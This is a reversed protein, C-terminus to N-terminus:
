NMSPHLTCTVCKLSFSMCPIVYMYICYEYKTNKRKRPWHNIPYACIGGLALFVTSSWTIRVYPIYPALSMPYDWKLLRKTWHFEIPTSQLDLVLRVERRNKRLLLVVTHNLTNFTPSPVHRDVTLFIVDVVTSLSTGLEFNLLNFWVIPINNLLFRLSRPSSPARILTWGYFKRSGCM